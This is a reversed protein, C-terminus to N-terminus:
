SNPKPKVSAVDRLLRDFAKQTTGTVPEFGIRAADPLDAISKRAPELIDGMPTAPKTFAATLANLLRPAVAVSDTLPKPADRLAQEAKAFEAGINIPRPEPAPAPTKARPEPAVELPKATERPPLWNSPDKPHPRPRSLIAFAAVLIAAALALWATAKYVGRRSRTHQDEWMAKVVREAFGSPVAVPEPNALVALLVRAARLRSRCSVCAGFHPNADLTEPSADGDLARQIGDVTARCEPAAPETNNFPDYPM